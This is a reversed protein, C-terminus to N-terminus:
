ISLSTSDESNEHQLSINPTVPIFQESLSTGKQTIDHYLIKVAMEKVIGLELLAEYTQYWKKQEPMLYKSNVNLLKNIFLAPHIRFRLIDRINDECISKEKFAHLICYRQRKFQQIEQSNANICSLYTKHTIGTARLTKETHIIKDLLTRKQFDPYNLQVFDDSKSDLESIFASFVQIFQPEFVGYVDLNSCIHLFIKTLMENICKLYDSFDRYELRVNCHQLYDPRSQNSSSLYKFFPTLLMLKITDSYSIRNSEYPIQEIFNLCINFYSYKTFNFQRMMPMLELDISNDNNYGLLNKLQSVSEENVADASSFDVEFLLYSIKVKICDHLVQIVGKDKFRRYDSELYNEIYKEEIEKEDNGISYLNSDIYSSCCVCFFSRKDLTSASRIIDFLSLVDQQYNTDEDFVYEDFDRDQYEPWHDQIEKIKDFIVHPM